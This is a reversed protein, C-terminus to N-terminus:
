LIYNRIEIREEKVKFNLQSLKGDGDVNGTFLLLEISVTINSELRDEL